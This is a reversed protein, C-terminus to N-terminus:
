FLTFSVQSNRPVSSSRGWREPDWLISSNFAFGSINIEQLEKNIIINNNNNNNILEQIRSYYYSTASSGKSYDKKRWGVVQLSNCIPGEVLVRKRNAGLMAVPWTGFM